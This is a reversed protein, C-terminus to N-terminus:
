SSLSLVEKITLYGDKKKRIINFIFSISGKYFLYTGLIVSGLIFIMALFLENITTFDGGFLKSSIYYGSLIMIIGVAGIVIEWISLKKVTTETSSVIRFLALISQRKIFL